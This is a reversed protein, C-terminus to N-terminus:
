RLMNLLLEDFDFSDEEEKLQKAYKKLFKKLGTLNSVSTVYEEINVLENKHTRFLVNLQENLKSLSVDRLQTYAGEVAPFPAACLLFYEEGLRDLQSNLVKNYRKLVEDTQMDPNQASEELWDIQMSLLSALDKAQYAETLRKMREEKVIRIEDDTERDPHLEKVLEIYIERISKLTQEEQMQQEIERKTLKRRPEPEPEEKKMQKKRTQRKEEKQMEKELQTRMYEETATMLEEENKAKKMKANPKIGFISFLELAEAVANKEQEERTLGTVIESYRVQIEQMKLRKEEPIRVNDVGGCENLVLEALTSKDKFTLKANEYMEDLYLLYDYKLDSEKEFLPRAHQEYFAIIIKERESLEKINQKLTAIKKNLRNFDSQAKSLKVKGKAIVPCTIADKPLLTKKKQIQKKAM